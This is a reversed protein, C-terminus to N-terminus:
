KIIIIFPGLSSVDSVNTKLYDNENGINIFQSRDNKIYTKLIVM